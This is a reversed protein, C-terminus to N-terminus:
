LSDAMPGRNSRTPAEAPGPRPATTPAGHPAAPAGSPLPVTRAPGVPPVAPAPVVVPAASSPALVIHVEEGPQAELVRSETVYGTARATLTHRAGDRPLRLTREALPAGDLELAAGAPEVSIRLAVPEAAAAATLPPSRGAEGRPRLTLAGALAGGVLLAALAAWVRARPRPASGTAWSRAAGTDDGSRAPAAGLSPLEAAPTAPTVLGPAPTAATPANPAPHPGVALAREVSARGSAPGFPLLALALEGASQFRRGPDKELARLIVAELEPPAGPLRTRLPIAPDQVVALFYAPLSQAEFALYGTLLKYLTQAVSFLDSRGDVSRADRLQEPSMYQPSGLSEGTETLPAAEGPAGVQLTKSIGFDLIKLFPPAGPRRALFLNAPKIDRHVIGAAHAEALAELAELVHGVAVAIPLPGQKRAVRELDEGELLEMVIYPAGDASRGVDFVRAVHESGIAAAARAERLFRAVLDANHRYAPLMLKVAFRQGLDVHLVALVAGMGGQGLVREVRYKEGIIEGAQPLRDTADHPSAM